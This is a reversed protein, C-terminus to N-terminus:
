QDELIAKAIERGIDNAYDMGLLHTKYNGLAIEACRKREEARVEAFAKEILDISRIENSESNPEDVFENCVLDEAREKDTTM